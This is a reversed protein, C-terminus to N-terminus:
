LVLSYLAGAGFMTQALLSRSFAAAGSKTEEEQPPNSAPIPTPASTPTPPAPTAPTPPVLSAPVPTPTPTPTPPAPTAPAPPPSPTPLTGLQGGGCFCCSSKVEAQSCYGVSYSSCTGM